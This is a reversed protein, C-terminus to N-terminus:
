FAAICIRRSKMPKMRLMQVGWNMRRNLNSALLPCESFLLFEVASSYVFQKQIEIVGQLKNLLAHPSCNAQVERYRKDVEEFKERSAALETNRIIMCQLLFVFMFCDYVFRAHGVKETAPLHELAHIFCIGVCCWSIVGACGLKLPLSWISDSIICYAQLLCHYM